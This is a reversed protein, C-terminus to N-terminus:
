AYGLSITTKASDICYFQLKHFIHPNPSGTDIGGVTAPFYTLLMCAQMVLLNLQKLDAIDDLILLYGSLNEVGEGRWGCHFRHNRM